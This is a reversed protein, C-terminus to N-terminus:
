GRAAKGTPRTPAVYMTTWQKCRRSGYTAFATCKRREYPLARKRTLELLTIRFADVEVRGEASPRDAVRYVLRWAHEAITAQMRRVQESPVHSLNAMLGAMDDHPGSEILVSANASWGAFHWPWQDRQAPHFFVPICGLLLSDVVAKRSISDGPPQLCFTSNWYADLVPRLDKHRPAGGVAVFICRPHASCVAQLQQRGNSFAGHVKFSAAALLPRPHASTWPHGERVSSPYPVGDYLRDAYYGSYDWANQRPSEVSLKTMGRFLLRNYQLERFPSAERIDGVRPQVLFHDRGGWRAAATVFRRQKRRGPAAAARVKVKALAEKLKSADAAVSTFNSDEFRASFAPIFFIDALSANDTRCSYALTRQYILEGLSWQGVEYIDVSTGIRFMPTIGAFAQAEFGWRQHQTPDRWAQELGYVYLRPYCRNDDAIAPM